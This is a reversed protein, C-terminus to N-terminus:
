YRYYLYPPISELVTKEPLSKIRHNRAWRKLMLLLGKKHTLFTQKHFIAEAKM